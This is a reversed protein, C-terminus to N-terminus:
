MESKKWNGGNIEVRNATLKSRSNGYKGCVIKGWKRERIEALM